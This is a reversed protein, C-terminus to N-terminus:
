SQLHTLFATRPDPKAKSVSREARYSYLLLLLMLFFVSNVSSQRYLVSILDLDKITGDWTYFAPHLELHNQESNLKLSRVREKTTLWRGRGPKRHM